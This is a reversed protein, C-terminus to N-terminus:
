QDPLSPQVCTRSSTAHTEIGWRGRCGTSRARRLCRPRRRRGGGLEVASSPPGCRPVSRARARRTRADLWADIRAAIAEVADEDLEFSVLGRSGSPCTRPSRRASRPPARTHPRCRCRAPRPRRRPSWGSRRPSPARSSSRTRPPSRPRRGRRARPPRRLPRQRRGRPRREAYDAPCRPRPLGLPHPLASRGRGGELGRGAAALERLPGLDGARSGPRSRAAAHARCRRLRGHAAPRGPHRPTSWRGPRSCCTSGKSVILKGVFIVRPGGPRPTGTSRKRRPRPMATGRHARRPARRPDSATARLAPALAELAVPRESRRSRALVADIDVGPPGLRVKANTEPDDVALRLRAAIHGSGVLIGAAGDVAEERTPTSATSTPCCRTPSTPATSRSRTARARRPRPDGPGDGPPQRAGRRRRRAVRGGRTGRDVNADLYRDLEADSLEAFTKM